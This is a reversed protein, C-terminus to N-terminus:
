KDAPLVALRFGYYPHTGSPNSFDDRYLITSHSANEGWSGGRQRRCRNGNYIYLDRCWERVNGLMDYCGWANPAKTGVIHSKSSANASYWAVENQTKGVANTENTTTGARCAYEWQMETPLDANLGTKARIRGMFSDADVRNDNPYHSGEDSGRINNYSVTEVPFGEGTKYQSPNTGMVFQYQKQTVEFIGMYYGYDINVGDVASSNPPIFRLWLERTRCADNNLNPPEQTYTVSYKDPISGDPNTLNIVMYLGSGQALEIHLSFATTHLNPEDASMDWTVRHRGAKVPQNNTGDGTMSTM